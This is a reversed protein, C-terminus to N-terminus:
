EIIVGIYDVSTFPRMHLGWNDSAHFRTMGVIQTIEAYKGHYGNDTSAFVRTGIRPIKEGSPINLHFEIISSDMNSLHAIYM